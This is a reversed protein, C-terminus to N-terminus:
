RQGFLCGKIRSVARGRRDAFLQHVVRKELSQCKLSLSSGVQRESAGNKWAAAKKLAQDNLAWDYDFFRIHQVQELM